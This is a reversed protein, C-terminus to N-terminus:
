EHHFYTSMVYKFSKTPMQGQHPFMWLPPFVAVNGRVAPITFNSFETGAENDNLYYLFALYRTATKKSKADIHWPFKHVNPTYRKIRFGEVTCRRPVYKNPDYKDLYNAGIRVTLDHLEKVYSENSDLEFQDFIDYRDDIESSEFVHILWDCQDKTLVEKYVEIM